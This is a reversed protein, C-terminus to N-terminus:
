NGNLLNLLAYGQMYMCCTEAHGIENKLNYFFIRHFELVAFQESLSLMFVLVLQM